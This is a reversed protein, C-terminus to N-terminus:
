RSNKAEGSCRSCSRLDISDLGDVVKWATLLAPSSRVLAAAPGLATVQPTKGPASTIWGVTTSPSANRTLRAMGTERDASIERAGVPMSPRPTRARFGRPQDTRTWRERTPWPWERPRRCRRGRHTKNKERGVFASGASEECDVDDVVVVAVGVLEGDEANEGVDRRKCRRLRKGSLLRRGRESSRAEVGVSCEFPPDAIGRRAFEDNMQTKHEGTTPAGHREAEVAAVRQARLPRSTPARTYEM